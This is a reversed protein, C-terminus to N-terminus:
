RYEVLHYVERQLVGMDNVVGCWKLHLSLRRHFHAAGQPLHTKRM